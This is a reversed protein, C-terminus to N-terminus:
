SYGNMTCGTARTMPTASEEIGLMVYCLFTVEDFVVTSRNSATADIWNNRLLLSSGRFYTRKVDAASLWGIVSITGPLTDCCPQAMHLASHYGAATWAFLVQHCYELTRCWSFRRVQLRVALRMEWSILSRRKLMEAWWYRQTFTFSHRFRQQYVWKMHYRKNPTVISLCWIWSDRVM